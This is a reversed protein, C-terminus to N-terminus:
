LYYKAVIKPFGDLFFFGIEKARDADKGKEKKGQLENEPKRQVRHVGEEIETGAILVIEKVFRPVCIIARLNGILVLPNGPIKGERFFVIANEIRNM